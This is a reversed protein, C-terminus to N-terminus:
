YIWLIHQFTDYCIFNNDVAQLRKDLEEQFLRSDYSKYDRYKITTPTQKPVFVKLVTLTLKHHDSLGIELTQSNQFSRIKNTLMLDICSPNLPNKFCTNEKILNKLDYVDCFENMRSESTESNFDGVLLVNDYKSLFNDLLKGLECLYKAINQKKNNYGGYLLWKKKRLNIEIFIGELDTNNVLTSLNRSALDNRVYISVGGGNSNRDIGYLCYGDIRFQESPFTSDLKTETVVLVDLNGIIVEKLDDFKNRM